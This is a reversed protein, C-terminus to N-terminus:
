SDSCSGGATSLLVCSLVQETLHALQAQLQLVEDELNELRERTACDLAPSRAASLAQDPEGGEEPSAAAAAHDEPAASSAPSLAADVGAAKAAKRAAGDLGPPQEGAKRKKSINPSM